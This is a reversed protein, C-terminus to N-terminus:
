AQPWEFLIDITYHCKECWEVKDCNTLKVRDNGRHWNSFKVLFSYFSFFSSKKCIHNSWRIVNHWLLYFISDKSVTSNKSVCTHIFLECQCRLPIIIIKQLYKITIKSVILPEKNSTSKKNSATINDSSQSFGLLFLSETVSFLLYFFKDSPCWQKSQVGKKRETM